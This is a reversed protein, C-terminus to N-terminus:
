CNQPPIWFGDDTMWYGADLMEQHTMPNEVKKLLYSGDGQDIWEVKDGEKLDAAELLDEPFTVFYETEDTEAVKTEEVPLIWKVVKDQKVSSVTSGKYELDSHGWPRMGDDSEEWFSTWSKKCEPSPDDKDCSKQVEEPYYTEEWEKWGQIHGKGNGNLLALLEYARGTHYKYCYYNDEVVKRITDYIEQPSADAASLADEVWTELKKLSYKKYDFDSMKM